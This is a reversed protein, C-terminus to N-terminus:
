EYHLACTTCFLFSGTPCPLSVPHIKKDHSIPSAAEKADAPCQLAPVAPIQGKYSELGTSKQMHSLM